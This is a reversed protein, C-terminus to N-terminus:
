CSCVKSIGMLIFFVVNKMASDVKHYWRPAGRYAIETNASLFIEWKEALDMSAVGSEEKPGFWRGFFRGAWSQKWETGWADIFYSRVALAYLYAFIAAIATEYLCIMRWLQPSSDSYDLSHWYQLYTGFFMERESPGTLFIYPMVLFEYFCLTVISLCFFWFARWIISGHQSPNNFYFSTAM